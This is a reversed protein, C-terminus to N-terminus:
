KLDQIHLWLQYNSYRKDLSIDKGFWPPPIFKNEEETNIFEVEAVILAVQEYQDIEIFPRMGDVRFISRTKILPRKDVQTILQKYLEM